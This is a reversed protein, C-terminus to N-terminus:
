GGTACSSPSLGKACRPAGPYGPQDEVKLILNEQIQPSSESSM